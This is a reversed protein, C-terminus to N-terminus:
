REEFKKWRVEPVGEVFSQFRSLTFFYDSLRNLLQGIPAYDLSLTWVSREARRTIARCVHILAVTESGGPVIFYTLPQLHNSMHDIEIEINQTSSSLYEKERDTIKEMALMGGLDFLLHNLNVLFHSPEKIKALLLGVFSNLEDIDGLANFVHAPKPIEKSFVLDSSGKDGRKTYIKPM